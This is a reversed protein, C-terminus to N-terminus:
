WVTKGVKSLYADDNLYVLTEANDAINALQSEIAHSNFVPLTNTRWNTISHTLSTSFADWHSVLQIRSSPLVALSANLWFPAQMIRCSATGELTQEFLHSELDQSEPPGAIPLSASLLSAKRMFPANKIVSRIGYRLQDHSRFNKTRTGQEAKYRRQGTAYYDKWSVWHNSDEVFTWAFDVVAEPLTGNRSNGLLEDCLTGRSIWQDACAQTFTTEGATKRLQLSPHEFQESQGENSTTAHVIWGPDHFDVERCEPPKPYAHPVAAVDHHIRLPPSARKLDHPLPLNAHIKAALKHLSDYRPKDLYVDTSISASLLLVASLIGIMGCMCLRSKRAQVFSASRLRTSVNSFSRTRFGKDDVKEHYEPLPKTPFSATYVSGDFSPLRSPPTDLTVISLSAEFSSSATPTHEVVGDTYKPPRGSLSARRVATDHIAELKPM